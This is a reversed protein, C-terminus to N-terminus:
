SRKNLCNKYLNLLEQALYEKSYKKIYKDVNPHTNKLFDFAKKIEKSYAEPSQSNVVKGVDKSEIVEPIAGKNSGIVFCDNIIGEIIVRGFGEAVQSPVLLIDFAKYYNKIQDRPINGLTHLNPRKLSQMQKRLPGDGLVVFNLKPNLKAIKPILNAGKEVTLSGVYGVIKGFNLNTKKRAAKKSLRSHFIPDIPNYLTDCNSKQSKKLYINRLYESISIFQNIKSFFKKKKNSKKIERRINFFRADRIHAIKIAKIKAKNLATISELNNAHVINFDSKKFQKEIQKSLEYSSFFNYIKLFFYFINKHNKSINQSATRRQYLFSRLSRFRIIKLNPKLQKIECSYDSYNPTLITIDVEASKALMNITTHASIEAGGMIHPPFYEAVFLLKIKKRM